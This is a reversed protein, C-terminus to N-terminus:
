GGYAKRRVPSPLSWMWPREYEKELMKMLTRMMRIFELNDVMGQCDGFYITRYIHREALM